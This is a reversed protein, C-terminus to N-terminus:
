IGVAVPELNAPRTPVAPLSADKRPANLFHREVLRHFTWGSALAAAFSLPVGVALWLAPTQLGALDLACTLAVVLPFHTLYISYSRQGCWLFPQSLRSRVFAADWRRLLGLLLAFACAICLYEDLHREDGTTAGRARDIVAYIVGAGFALSILRSTWASAGNLQYFLLLGAAFLLWHGDMCWGRLDVEMMRCGHRCLLTLSTIVVAGLFFRRASLALLLAAILYFQEEFCLTWTNRMLYATPAGSVHHQWAESATVNGLWNAPTLQDLRPLQTCHEYLTPFLSSLLCTVIVAWGCACWLPPYIRRLRRAFFTTLAIPRRQSGHVSAAICYGSVVFFFPVGIWALQAFKVGAGAITWTAPDHPDLPAPVYFSTHHLV